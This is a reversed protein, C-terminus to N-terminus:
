LVEVPSPSVSVGTKSPVVFGRACWSGSSFLLLEVPSQVLVVQQHSPRRHLHPDALSWACPPVSPAAPQSPGGQRLCEQPKGNVRRYVGPSSFM